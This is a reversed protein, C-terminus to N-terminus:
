HKEGRMRSKELPIDLKFNPTSDSLPFNFRKTVSVAKSGPFVTFLEYLREIQSQKRPEGMNFIRACKRIKAQFTRLKESKINGMM